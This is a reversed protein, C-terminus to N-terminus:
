PLQARKLRIPGKATSPDAVRGKQTVAIHGRVVLRNAAYRTRQMAKAGLGAEGFVARSAESPCITASAARARLLAIIAQEM